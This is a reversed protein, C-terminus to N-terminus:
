HPYFMTVFDAIRMKITKDSPQYFSYRPPINLVKGPIRFFTSQGHYETKVTYWMECPQLRLSNSFNGFSELIDGVQSFWDVIFSLPITDWLDYASPVLGYTRMLEEYSSPVLDCMKFTIKAGVSIEGDKARGTVSYFTNTLSKLKDVANFGAQIDRADLKSTTYQYRYSLWLKGPDKALEAIMTHFGHIPDSAFTFISRLTSICDFVGEVANVSIAPLSQCAAVYAESFLTAYPHMYVGIDCWSNFAVLENFKFDFEAQQWTVSLIAYWGMSLVNHMRREGQDVGYWIQHLYVDYDNPNDPSREVRVSYDEQPYQETLSPGYTSIVRNPAVRRSVVWPWSVGGQIYSITEDPSIYVDHTNGLVSSVFYPGSGCERFPGRSTMTSKIGVAKDDLPICITCGMNAGSGFPRKDYFVLTQIPM